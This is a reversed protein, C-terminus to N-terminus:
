AGNIHAAEEAIIAYKRDAGWMYGGIQGTAQVVRHCPILFAVLNKGIASGVARSAGPKDIQKAMAGYTSLHGMPITLLAEWVDFQFPTGSIHVQVRDTNNEELFFLKLAHRHQDNESESYNAKPFRSKLDVIAKSKDDFFAAHCIGTSTSAILVNGFPTEAISYHISLNVGGNKIEEATMKQLDIYNETDSIQQPFLQQKSNM